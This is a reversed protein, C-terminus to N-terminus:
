GLVLARERGCIEAMTRRSTCRMARTMRRAREVAADMDMRELRCDESCFAEEGGYMYAERGAGLRRGCIGCEDLFNAGTERRGAGSGRLRRVM